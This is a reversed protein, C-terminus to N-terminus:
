RGGAADLEDATAQLLPLLGRLAAPSLAPDYLARAADALAGLVAGWSPRAPEPDGQQWALRAAAQWPAPQGAPLAASESLPLAGTRRVWEAQVEPQLFYRIFAWAASQAELPADLIALWPGHLTVAPACTEGACPYPIVAWEDANGAAEIAAAVAPLGATSVPTFLGQRAAFEADPYRSAPRWACGEDLLGRLFAAAAQTEATDFAYGDPTAGPSGFARLWAYLSPGDPAAMWGGTGDGNAAAAACAQRRFEEPSAPPAAFGLQRAWGANYALAHVGRLAPVGLNDAPNNLPDWLRNVLPTREEQTLGFQPDWAFHQIPAVLGATQWGALQYPHALILGPWDGATLAATMAQDLAFPSAQAEPRIVVGYPNAANFAAAIDELASKAAGGLAHWLRLEGAQPEPISVTAAPEESPASATPTEAAPPPSTPTPAAPPAACAALLALLCLCPAFRPTM